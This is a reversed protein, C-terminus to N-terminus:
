LLDTCPIHLGFICHIHFLADRIVTCYLAIMGNVVLYVMVFVSYDVNCFWGIGTHTKGDHCDSFTYLAVGAERPNQGTDAGQYHRESGTSFYLVTHLICYSRAMKRLCM